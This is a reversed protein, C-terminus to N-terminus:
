SRGAPEGAAGLAALQDDLVFVRDLLAFEEDPRRGDGFFRRMEQQWRDNVGTAAMAAQAASLDEAEVYGVLLGDDRCFISYNHWGAGRLARLMEPWVAAHRARYEDVLEPRLQSTFCYRNM